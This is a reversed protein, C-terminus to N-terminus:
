LTQTAAKRQRLIMEDANPYITCNLWCHCAGVDIRQRLIEAQAGTWIQDFPTDTLCGVTSNKLIPCFYVFGEPSFAAFRRGAVCKRFV